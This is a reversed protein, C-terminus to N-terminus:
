GAAHAAQACVLTPELKPPLQPARELHRVDHAHDQVCPATAQTTHAGRRCSTAGARSCVCEASRHSSHGQQGQCQQWQRRRLAGSSCKLWANYRWMVCSWPRGSSSSSFL